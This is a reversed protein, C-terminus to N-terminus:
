LNKLYQITNIFKCNGTITNVFADISEDEESPIDSSHDTETTVSVGSVTLYFGVIRFFIRQLIM